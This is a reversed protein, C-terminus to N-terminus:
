CSGREVNALSGPCYGQEGSRFKLYNVSLISPTNSVELVRTREYVSHRKTLPTQELPRHRRIVLYELPDRMMSIIHLHVNATSLVCNRKRIWFLEDINREEMGM